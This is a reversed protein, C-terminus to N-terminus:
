HGPRGFDNILGAEDAFHESRQILTAYAIAQAQEDRTTQSLQFGVRLEDNSKMHKFPFGDEPHLQERWPKLQHYSMRAGVVAAGGARLPLYTVHLSGSSSHVQGGVAAQGELTMSPSILVLQERAACDDCTTRFGYFLGSLLSTPKIVTRQTVHVSCAKGDFWGDYVTFTVENAQRRLVEWRLPQPRTAHDHCTQYFPHTGHARMDIHGARVVTLPAQENRLYIRRYGNAPRRYGSHHPRDQVELGGTSGAPPLPSPVGEFTNPKPLKVKPLTSLDFSAPNVPVPKGDKFSRRVALLGPRGSTPRGAQVYSVPQSAAPSVEPEPTAVELTPKPADNSPPPAQPPPTGGCASFLALALGLRIPRSM